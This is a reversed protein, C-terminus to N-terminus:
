DNNGGEHEGQDDDGQDDNDGQDNGGCRFFTNQNIHIGCVLFTQTKDAPFFWGGDVVLQIGTVAHSGLVALAGTYTNCQTGPILQSTDWRCPDNNGILNGSTTWTNPACGTFTPSPGLYVFVNKGDINIQFRPSGGGCSNHIANFKTELRTLSAFTTVGTNNFDIGSFDNAPSADSLDSILKVAHHQRTAGGFLTASAALATPVIV